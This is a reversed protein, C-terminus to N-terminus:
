HQRSRNPGSGNGAMWSLGSRSGLGVCYFTLYWGIKWWRDSCKVGWIFVHCLCLSSNLCSKLLVFQFSVPYTFNDPDSVSGSSATFMVFTALGVALRIDFYHVHTRLFFLCFMKRANKQVSLTRGISNMLVCSDELLTFQSRQDLDNLPRTFCVHSCICMM